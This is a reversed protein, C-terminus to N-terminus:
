RHCEPAKARDGAQLKELWSDAEEATLHLGTARYHDWAELADQHFQSRQEERNVYQEIAQCMMWHPSRRQSVALQQIRKKLDPALKLSTTSYTAM